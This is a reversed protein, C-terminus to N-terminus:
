KPLYVQKIKPIYETATCLEGIDEASVDYMIFYVGHIGVVGDDCKYLITASVYYAEDNVEVDQLYEVSKDTYCLPHLCEDCNDIFYEDVDSISYFSKDTVVDIIDKVKM